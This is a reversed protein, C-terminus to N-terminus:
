GELGFIVQGPALQDGVKVYIKKVKGEFPSKITHLTKMVEVTIMPHGKSVKEGVNVKIESVIGPMTCLIEM